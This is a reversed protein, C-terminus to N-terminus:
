LLIRIRICPFVDGRYLQLAIAVRDHLSIDLLRQQCQKCGRAHQPQNRANVDCAQQQCPRRRPLTVDSNVGRKAILNAPLNRNHNKDLLLQTRREAIDALEAVAIALFDCALAIPQGHFNGASFAREDGLETAADGRDLRAQIDSPRRGLDPFFLPNDTAANMEALAIMKAYAIADRSAGHVQPSCRISYADQLSKARDCLQSGAILARINAASARQGTMNRADHVAPDYARTRGCVAEIATAAAVDAINALSEADHAALAEFKNPASTFPLGTLEAVKAAVPDGQHFYFRYRLTLSGGAPITYDGIHPQDKLNEYDHQGFPNAGFLGYDRAM